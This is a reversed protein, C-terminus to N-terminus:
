VYVGYALVLAVGSGLAVFGPLRREGRFLGFGGVVASALCFLIAAYLALVSLLLTGEVERCYPGIPGYEEPCKIWVTMALYSIVCILLSGLAGWM